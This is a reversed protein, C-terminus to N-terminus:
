EYGMEKLASVNNRWGEKVKVRLQLNVKTGFMREMEKRAEAGILGLMSGRKGILIGKHSERECYIVAFVDTIKERYEIKETEVGVGHPVEERLYELAKERILESCILREPRDTVMDEPFYLPGEPLLSRILGVLEELGSGDRASTKVINRIFPESSLRKECTQVSLASAIDTKNVAAIVPAKVTKLKEIIAEDKERIGAAADTMFLIADVENLADYSTKLMYEGLRNRPVTIGPTDMFVIQYGDRTLVGLIRNRTTQARESVISIKQGILSNLLTSKGVNPSGIISVFGSLHGQKIM